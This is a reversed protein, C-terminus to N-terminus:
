IRQKINKAAKAANAKELNALLSALNINPNRL